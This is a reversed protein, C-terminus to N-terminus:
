SFLRCILRDGKKKAQKRSSEAAIRYQLFRSFILMMFFGVGAAFTRCFRAAFRTFFQVLFRAIAFALFVDHDRPPYGHSRHRHAEFFAASLDAYQCYFGM